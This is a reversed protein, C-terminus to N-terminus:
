PHFFIQFLYQSVTMYGIWLCLRIPKKCCFTMWCFHKSEWEDVDELSMSNMSPKSFVESTATGLLVKVYWSQVYEHSSSLDKGLFICEVVNIWCTSHLTLDCNIENMMASVLLQDNGLCNDHELTSPVCPIVELKANSFLHFLLLWYPHNFEETDM